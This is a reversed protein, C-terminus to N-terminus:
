FIYFADTFHEVFFRGESHTVSIIDFRFDLDKGVTSTYHNVAQILSKIKSPSVAQEPRQVKSESRTKVEVIATVTQYEAIIDIEFNKFRWNRELITYGRSELFDSAIQEGTKGLDNHTAM